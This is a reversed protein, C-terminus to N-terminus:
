SAHLLMAQGALPFLVVVTISRSPYGQADREAARRLLRTCSIALPDKL